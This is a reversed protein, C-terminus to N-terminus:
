NVPMPLSTERLWGFMPLDVWTDHQCENYWQGSIENRDGTEGLVLSFCGLRWRHVRWAGSADHSTFREVLTKLKAQEDETWELEILHSNEKTIRVLPKGNALISESWRRIMWPKAIMIMRHAGDQGAEKNDTWLAFMLSKM